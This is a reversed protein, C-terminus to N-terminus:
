DAQTVGHVFTARATVSLKIRDVGFLGLIVTPEDIDVQVIVIQGSVSSSGELGVSRLYSDAAAIALTPELQLIGSRLAPVSVQDAGQRAAQQAQAMLTSREAVARGADVVLGILAFLALCLVALFATLSGSEEGVKM